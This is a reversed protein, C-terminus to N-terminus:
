VAIVAIILQEGHMILQMWSCGLQVICRVEDSMMLKTFPISLIVEGPELAELALLGRGHMQGLDRVAVKLSLPADPAVSRNSNSSASSSSSSITDNGVTSSAWALINDVATSTMSSSANVAGVVRIASQVQHRPISQHFCPTPISSAAATRRLM